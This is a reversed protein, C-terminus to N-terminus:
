FMFFNQVRDDLHGGYWTAEADLPVWPQTMNTVNYHESKNQSQQNKEKRCENSSGAAAASCINQM